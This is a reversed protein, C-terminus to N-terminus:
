VARKLYTSAFIFGIFIGAIGSSFVHGALSSIVVLLVFSIYALRAYPYKVIQKRMNFLQYALVIVGVFLVLGLVGFTFFFDLFEMEISHATIEEYTSQGIGILKEIVNYENKYVEYVKELYLNRSSLLLTLIDVREYYYMIRNQFLESSMVKQVFLFVGIPILFFGIILFKSLKKFSSLIAYPRIKMLLTIIVIGLIASKSGLVFAINATFAFFIWFHLMKKRILFGYALIGYIILFVSSIENGAYIYGKSGIGSRYLPFGLGVFKLLVNGVIIVYSIKIFTFLRRVIRSDDQLFLERFYIFCVFPTLYKIIKLGDSYISVSSGQIIQVFTPFLLLLFVVATVLLYLVKRHLRLLMLLLIATKYLQSLPFAFASGTLKLYGNTSDILLVMSLLM